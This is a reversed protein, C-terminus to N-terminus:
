PPSRPSSRLTCLRILENYCGHVDGVILMRKHRRIESPQVTRVLAAMPAVHGAAPVADGDFEVKGCFDVVTVDQKLARMM